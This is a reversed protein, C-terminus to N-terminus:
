QGLSIRSTGVGVAFELERVAQNYEAIAKVKGLKAQSLNNATKQLDSLTAAGLGYSINTIRYAEETLKLTAEASEAALRKAEIDGFRQRIELEIQSEILRDAMTVQLYAAKANLYTSSGGSSVLQTHAWTLDQYEKAFHMQGVENRNEVASKIADELTIAPATVLTDGGEFTTQQMLPYENQLNFAMLATDYNNETAMASSLATQYDMEATLMELKSASGLKYKKQVLKYTNEAIALSEKSIKNYEQLQLMQYFTTLASERIGNLDAEYNKEYNKNYYKKTLEIQKLTITDSPMSASAMSAFAQAMNFEMTAMMVATAQAPNTSDLGKNAIYDSVTGSSGGSSKFADELSRQTESNGSAVARDQLRHIDALEKATGTTLMRQELVDLTLALSDPADASETAATGAFAFSACSMALALALILSIYKRINKM